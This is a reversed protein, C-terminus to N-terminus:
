RAGSSAAAHDQRELAWLLRQLAGCVEEARWVPAQNEDYCSRLLDVIAELKERVTEMDQDLNQRQEDTMPYHM